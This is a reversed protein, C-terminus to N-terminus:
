LKLHLILSDIGCEVSNCTSCLLILSFMFVELVKSM